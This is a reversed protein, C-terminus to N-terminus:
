EFAYEMDVLVGNTGDVDGGRRSHFRPDACTDIGDHVIQDHQVGWRSLQIKIVLPINLYGEKVDGDVVIGGCTNVLEEVVKRHFGTADYDARNQYSKPGIGCLILARIERVNTPMLRQMAADIISPRGGRRSGDRKIPQLADRGCHLLLAQKYLTDVLLVQHCDASIGFSSLGHRLRVGDIRRTTKYLKRPGKEYISVLDVNDSSSVFANMGRFDPVIAKQLKHEEMCPLLM